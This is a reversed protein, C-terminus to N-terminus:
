RRRPHRDGYAAKSTPLTWRYTKSRKCIQSRTQRTCEEMQRGFDARVRAHDATPFPSSPKSVKIYEYSGARSESSIATSPPPSAPAPM